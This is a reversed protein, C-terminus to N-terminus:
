MMHDQNSFKNIQYNLFLLKRESEEKKDEKYITIRRICAPWAQKRHTSTSKWEESQDSKLRKKIM